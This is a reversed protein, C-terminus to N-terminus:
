EIEYLWYEILFTQSIPTYTASSMGQVVAGHYGSATRFHVQGDSCGVSIAARLGSLTDVFPGPYTVSFTYTIQSDLTQWNAGGDLSWRARALAKIGYPNSKTDTVIKSQQYNGSTVGDNVITITDHGVIKDIPYNSFFALLDTDAM